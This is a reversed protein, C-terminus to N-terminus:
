PGRRFGEHTRPKPAALQFTKLRPAGVASPASLVAVLKLQAGMIMVMMLAVFSAMMLAAAMALVVGHVVVMVRVVVVVLLGVVVVEVLAAVAALIAMAMLATTQDGRSAGGMSM